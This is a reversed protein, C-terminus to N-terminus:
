RIAEINKCGAKELMEASQTLFDTIMKEDNDDYDVSTVLLPIGWQDKKDKSLRVHNKSQSHNRGAHVYLSDLRRTGYHIRQLQALGKRLAETDDLRQATLAWSRPSAASMIRRRGKWTATIPLSRSQPNRGSYYRDELGEMTGGVSARYNHFAVYKGLLGNDNGLGNPFRTSTSNLLILNSNLASANVFIIRAFYETAENTNADIVRVGTAKVKM